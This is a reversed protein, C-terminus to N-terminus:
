APEFYGFGPWLVLVPQAGRRAERSLRLHALSRTMLPRESDISASARLTASDQGIRRLTEAVQTEYHRLAAALPNVVTLAPAPSLSSAADRVPRGGDTFASTPLQAFPKAGALSRGHPM